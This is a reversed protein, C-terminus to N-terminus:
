SKQILQSLGVAREGAGHKRHSLLLGRLSKSSIERLSHVYSRRGFVDDHAGFGRM